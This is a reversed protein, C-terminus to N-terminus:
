CPQNAITKRPLGGARDIMKKEGERKETEYDRGTMLLRTGIAVM